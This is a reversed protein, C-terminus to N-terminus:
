TRTKKFTAVGEHMAELSLLACRLRTPGLTIGILELLNQTTYQEIFELSKGAFEQTILSATAQSIVCGKGEFKITSIGNDRVYAQFSISDGCSPNFTGTVIDPDELVGKNRPYRYHELLQEQYLHEPIM